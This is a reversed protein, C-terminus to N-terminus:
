TLPAQSQNCSLWSLMAMTMIMPTQIPVQKQFLIIIGAIVGVIAVPAMKTEVIPPSKKRIIQMISRLVSSPLLLGLVKTFDLGWILLIPTGFVLLGVGYISQILVCFALLIYITVM